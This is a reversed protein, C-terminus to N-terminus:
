GGEGGATTPTAYKVRWTPHCPLSFRKDDFRVMIYGGSASTIRGPKGDVTVRMGRKAPVGRTARIDALSV